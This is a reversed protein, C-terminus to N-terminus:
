RQLLRVIEMLNLQCLFSAKDLLLIKCPVHGQKGGGVYIPCTTVLSEGSGSNNLFLTPFSAPSPLFAVDQFGM